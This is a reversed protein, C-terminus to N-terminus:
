SGASLLWSHVWLAGASDLLMNCCVCEGVALSLLGLIHVNNGRAGQKDGTNSDISYIHPTVSTDTTIHAAFAM